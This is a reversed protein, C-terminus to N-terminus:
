KRYLPFFGQECRRLENVSLGCLDAYKEENVIIKLVRFDIAIRSFGYKFNFLSDREDSTGGGLHFVRYGLETADKRVSDIMLRTPASEKYKPDTGSLHYQVINGCFVFLGSCVKESGQYCSYIRVKFDTTAMLSEYHQREFFYKASANVSIMTQNYISIFEDLDEDTNSWSCVFGEKVLRKVLNRYNKRYLKFQAEMPLQLDIIVTEGKLDIMNDPFKCKGDLLTNLRTFLSVVNQSNAWNNVSKFFLTVVEEDVDETTILGPYGYVSTLDSWTDDIRRFLLPLAIKSTGIEFVLLIPEGEENDAAIQHYSWTHYFDHEIDGISNKWETETRIINLM